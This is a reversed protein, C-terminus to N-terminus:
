LRGQHCTGVRAARGCLAASGLARRQGPVPMCESNGSVQPLHLLSQAFGGLVMVHHALPEWVGQLPCQFCPGHRSGRAGLSTVM